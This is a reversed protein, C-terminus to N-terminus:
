GLMIRVFIASIIFCLACRAVAWDQLIFVIDIQHFRYVCLAYEVIFPSHIAFLVWLGVCEDLEFNLSKRRLLRYAGHIRLVNERFVKCRFM